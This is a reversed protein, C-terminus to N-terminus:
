SFLMYNEGTLMCGCRQKKHIYDKLFIFYSEILSSCTSCLLCAVISLSCLYSLLSVQIKKQMAENDEETPKVDLPATPGALAASDESKMELKAEGRQEATLSMGQRIMWPPLVKTPGGAAEDKGEERKVDGGALAVEVQVFLIRM